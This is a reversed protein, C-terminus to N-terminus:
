ALAKFAMHCPFGTVWRGGEPLFQLDLDTVPLLHRAAPSDGAQGTVRLGDGTVNKDGTGKKRQWAWSGNARRVWEYDKNETKEPGQWVDDRFQVVPITKEFRYSEDFNLSWRTYARIRFLADGTINPPLALQGPALGQSADLAVHRLIAGDPCILEVHLMRSKDTPELTSGNLVWANLWVTDGAAYCPRDTTLYIKEPSQHQMLDDLDPVLSFSEPINIAEEAFSVDANPIMGYEIPLMMNLGTITPADNFPRINLFNSYTGDPFIQIDGQDNSMRNRPIKSNDKLGYRSMYNKQQQVELETISRGFCTLIFMSDPPINFIKRKLLSDNLLFSNGNLLPSIRIKTRQNTPDYYRRIYNLMFGDQLLNGHYLSRVFHVLSAHYIKKRNNEWTSKQRKNKPQLEEFLPHGEWSTINKNYNHIFSYLIYQIHYGTEENVIQIPVRCSAKLYRTEPNYFLYVDNPNIVRISKTELPVGLIRKWFLYIDQEKINNNATIEVENLEHIKLSVNIRTFSRNINITHSEPIYGVHSVVIEYNGEGPIKLQYNGEDDTTTGVTTNAIFVSATPVPDGTDADVVQGTIVRQVRSQSYTNLHLLLLSLLFIVRNRCM